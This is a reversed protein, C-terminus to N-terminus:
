MQQYCYDPHNIMDNIALNLPNKGKIPMKTRCFYSDHIHSLHLAGAHVIIIPNSDSLIARLLRFDAHYNIAGFLSAVSHLPEKCGLVESLKEYFKEKHKHAMNFLYSFLHNHKTKAKEQYLKTLALKHEMCKAVWKKFLDTDVAPILKEVDAVASDLKAYVEVPLEDFDAVQNSDNKQSSNEIPEDTEDTEEDGNEFKKTLRAFAVESYNEKAWQSICRDFLCVNIYLSEENESRSDFNKISHIWPPIANNLIYDVYYQDFYPRNNLQLPNGQAIEDLISKKNHERCELYLSCKQNNRELDDFLNVLPMTQINAIKEVEQGNELKGGHREAFFLIKKGPIEFRTMWLIAGPHAPNPSLAGALFFLSYFYLKQYM